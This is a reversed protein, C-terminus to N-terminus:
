FNGVIFSEEDIPIVITENEIDEICEYEKGNEDQFIQLNDYETYECCLGIVDLEIDEGMDSEIDELWEFLAQLGEYSFQEGRGYRQFAREFGDFNLTIKM